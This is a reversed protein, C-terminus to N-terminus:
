AVARAMEPIPRTIERVPRLLLSRAPMGEPRAMGMLELLTPAVNALGGATSLQWFSTDVILCPVPYVSHQTQPMDTAPDLLEECNGHDATVVVSFDHAVAADLVRGVERDLTEVAHVVADPVATHGVMDGNAFNVVIFAYEGSAIAAMTADAVARASMEPMLDYTAVKPSPVLFRDEGPYPEGRGGNFFYTVHAFKETEACHFQRLGAASVTEGLTTAPADPGFAYPLGLAPDYEMMCTGSVLPRDGRDFGDFAAQTMAAMIQRPRDRRFNFLLLHDGANMGHFGPLVTPRVFEDTEGAAYAMEIADQATKAKRGKGMALMRWALETRDWRRDRDMAYYRGIVTAVQGDADSLARELTPLFTEASRPPTDRGDTIMHVLPRVGMKACLEILALLHGLHSHVGGDSVLGLLHLPRSAAGAADVAALLSPNRFFSGDEISKDIKVLNQRVVRGAGLSMHGVESNGMQGDPLGVAEGSAQLLTHPYRSLYADLKPTRAM